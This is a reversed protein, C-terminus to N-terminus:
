KLVEGQIFAEKFQEATMSSDLCVLPIGHRLCRYGLDARHEALKRALDPKTLSTRDILGAPGTGRVWGTLLTESQGRVHIAAVQCGTAILDQAWRFWTDAEGRVMEEVFDSIWFVNTGAYVNLTSPESIPIPPSASTERFLTDVEGVGLRGHWPGAEWWSEGDIPSGGIALRVESGELVALCAVFEAAL